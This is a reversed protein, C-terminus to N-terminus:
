RRYFTFTDTGGFDSTITQTISNGDKSITFLEDRWHMEGTTTHRIDQHRVAKLGVIPFEGRDLWLGVTGGGGEWDPNHWLLRQRFVLATGMIVLELEWKDIDNGTQCVYRVGDLRKILDQERNREREAIAAPSSEKTAKEQRYEIKNRLSKAAEVDVTSPNTLLFIKLNQLAQSYQGAKDQMIALGRYGAGLWPAINVAKQFEAIADKYDNETKAGEAAAIGRDVYKSAEEPIAPAPRMTQVHKIIKERLVNDNPNNRLDSVYQNLTEQPTVAHSIIVLLIIFLSIILSLIIIRHKM